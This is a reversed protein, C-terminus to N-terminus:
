KTQSGGASHYFSVMEFCQQTIESGGGLSSASGRTKLATTKDPKPRTYDWVADAVKLISAAIISPRVNSTPSLSLPFTSNASVLQCFFLYPQKRQQGAAPLLTIDLKLVALYQSM